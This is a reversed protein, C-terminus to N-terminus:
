NLCARVDCVETMCQSKVLAPDLEEGLIRRKRPRLILYLVFMADLFDPKSSRVRIHQHM